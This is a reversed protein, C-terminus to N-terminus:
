LNQSQGNTRSLTCHDVVSTRLRALGPLVSVCNADGRAQDLQVVTQYPRPHARAM